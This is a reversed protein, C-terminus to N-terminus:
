VNLVDDMSEDKQEQFGIGVIRQVLTCPGFHILM